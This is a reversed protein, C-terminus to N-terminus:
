HSLLFDEPARYGPSPTMTGEDAVVPHTHRAGTVVNKPVSRSDYPCVLTVPSSAFYMNLLSEYRIWMTIEAESRRAWVPEGVIRIWPVGREFSDAVFVRYGELAARPSRYWGASDAFQVGAADGGLADRLLDVQPRASVVLVSESKALGANVFPLLLALYEEDARYILAQHRLSPAVPLKGGALYDVSVGLADALALLTALRPDRRRGTEIQTIGAWSVGSHHALDERGWGLRERASRLTVGVRYTAM